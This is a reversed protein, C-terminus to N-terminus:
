RHSRVKPDTLTPADLSRIFSEFLAEAKEREAEIQPVDLPDSAGKWSDAVHAAILRSVILRIKKEQDATM